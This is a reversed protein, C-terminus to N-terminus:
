HGRPNAQTTAMSFSGALIVTIISLQPNAARDVTQSYTPVEIVCGVGVCVCVCM